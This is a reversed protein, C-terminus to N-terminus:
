SLAAVAAKREEGRREEEEAMAGAEPVTGRPTFCSVAPASMPRGTCPGACYGWSGAVAGGGGTFSLCFVCWYSTNLLYITAWIILPRHPGGLARGQAADGHGRRPV